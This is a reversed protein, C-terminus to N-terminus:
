TSESRETQYDFDVDYIRRYWGVETEYLDPSTKVVRVREILLQAGDAERTWLRGQLALLVAKIQECLSGLPIYEETVVHLKFGAHQLGTQGDLAEEENETDQIFFCFPPVANKKPQLPYIKEGLAQITELEGVLVYDPTLAEDM